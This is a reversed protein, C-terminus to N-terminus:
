PLDGGGAPEDTLRQGIAGRATRVVTGPALELLVFDEGLEVVRGYFGSTTVVEDGERLTAQLARVQAIRRQQPRWLLLYFTGAMLVLWIIAFTL